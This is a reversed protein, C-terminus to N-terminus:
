YRQHLLLFSEVTGDQKTLNDDTVETIYTRDSSSIPVLTLEFVPVGRLGKQKLKDEFEKEGYYYSPKIADREARLLDRKARKQGILNNSEDLQEKVLARTTSDKQQHDHQDNTGTPQKNNNVKQTQHDDPNIHSYNFTKRIHQQQHINISNELKHYQEKLIRIESDATIPVQKIDEIDAKCINLDTVLDPIDLKQNSLTAVENFLTDFQKDLHNQLFESLNQKNMNKRKYHRKQKRNQNKSMPKQNKDKSSSQAPPDPPSEKQKEKRKEELVVRPNIPIQLQTLMETGVMKTGVIQAVEQEQPLYEPPPPHEQSPVPQQLPVTPTAMEMQTDMDRDQAPLREINNMFSMKEELTLGAEVEIEPSLPPTM